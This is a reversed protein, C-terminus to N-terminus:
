CNPSAYEHLDGKDSLQEVIERKANRRRFKRGAKKADVKRCWAGKGRKAGNHEKRAGAELAM